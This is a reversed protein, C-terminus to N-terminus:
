NSNQIFYKVIITIFEERHNIEMIMFYGVVKCEKIANILWDHKAHKAFGKIREFNITTLFGM